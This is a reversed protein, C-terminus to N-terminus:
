FKKNGTVANRCLNWFITKKEVLACKSLEEIMGDINKLGNMCSEFAGQGPLIIHTSSGIDNLNKTITTEVELNSEYAAQKISQEASKINGLGYDIIAVIRKM